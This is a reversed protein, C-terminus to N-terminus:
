KGKGGDKEQFMWIRAIRIAARGAFFSAIVACVVLILVLGGWFPATVWWWSWDIFGTLKLVIFAVGLLGLISTGGGSVEKNAMPKIRAGNVSPRAAFRHLRAICTGSTAAVSILIVWLNNLPLNKRLIPAFLM